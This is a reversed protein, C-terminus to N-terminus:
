PMCERDCTASSRCTRWTHKVTAEGVFLEAAIEANSMGRAVYVRYGALDVASPLMSTGDLAHFEVDLGTRRAREVLDGAQAIGPVPTSPTADDTDRLVGLLQRLETM